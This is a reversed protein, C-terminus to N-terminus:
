GLKCYDGLRSRASDLLLAPDLDAGILIASAPVRDAIPVRIPEPCVDGGVREFLYRSAPDDVTRVLAKARIVDVPLTALWALLQLADLPEPLLIQCGTFEHAARHRPDFSQPQPLDHSRSPEVGKRGVTLRRNRAIASALQDTLSAADTESARSNIARVRERLGQFEIPELEDAHSFYVHSATELQLAELERFASRKGFHRADVVCVQWRPRMMFRSEMLTFSELLPIPDATGNLEVFLVDHRTKSAALALDALDELGDCCVCSGALAAVSAAQDRLTECDMEANERDNLIVDARLQRSKLESLCRRMLTTKGAGLFGSLLIMPRVAVLPSLKTSVLPSNM